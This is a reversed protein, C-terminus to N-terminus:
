FTVIARSILLRPLMSACTVTIVVGTVVFVFWDTL